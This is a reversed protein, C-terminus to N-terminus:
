QASIFYFKVATANTDQLTSVSGNGPTSAIAPWSGRPATLLNTGCLTYTGSTGTTFKVSSINNSRSISQIVPPEPASTPYAVYSMAGNTNFEFYGLYVEGLGSTRPPIWYFDSRQVTGSKTFNAPTVNTPFGSFTDNFNYNPGMSFSYSQGSVYHADGNNDPEVVATYTSLANNTYTVGEDRAGAPVPAMQNAVLHQSSATAPPIPQSPTGLAPRPSTSFLTWQTIAPTVSGDFWAFAAWSIGNTGVAALQAGSYQTLAIRQNPAANTFTSVPGVDVVLDNAGGSKQFCLLVDGVPFSAFNGALLDHAALGAALGILVIKNNLM